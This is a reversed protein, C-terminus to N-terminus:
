GHDIERPTCTLPLSRWGRQNTSYTHRASALDLTYDPALSFLEEFLIRAELRALQVGICAHVGGGFALHDTVKLTRHIDFREPEKFQREDHNAANFLLAVQEGERLTQGHLQLDRGLTRTELYTPSDFRLAEEIAGTVLTHDDLLEGKAQPHRELLVALNGILRTTTESGAITILFGFGIAEDRDLEGSRELQVIRGIVDDTPTGAQREDFVRDYYAYIKQISDVARRGDEASGHEINGIAHGWAILQEDMAEPVGLLRGIIAMPLRAAVDAALDLTGAALGPALLARARERIAPELERFRKPTLIDVMLQRLRTHYPPDMILLFPKFFSGEGIVVGGQNSFTEWDFLAKRVDEFRSLVWYNEGPHWCAPASDRMTKYIPLPNLHFDPSRPEFGPISPRDNPAPETMCPNYALVLRALVGM